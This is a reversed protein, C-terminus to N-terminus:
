GCEVFIDCAFSQHEAAFSCLNDKVGGSLPHLSWRAIKWKVAVLKM